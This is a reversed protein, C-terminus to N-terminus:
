QIKDWIGMFQYNGRVYKLEQAYEEFFSIPISKRNTQAKYANFVKIPLLFLRHPLRYGDKHYFEVALFGHTFPAIDDFKSLAEIQHDAINNFPLSKNQTAKCEILYVGDKTAILFDADTKESYTCGKDFYVKDPIRLVYGYPSFANRFKTELRKGTSVM